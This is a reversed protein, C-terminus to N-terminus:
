LQLSPPASPSDRIEVADILTSEASAEDRCRVGRVDSSQISRSRTHCVCNYQDLCSVPMELKIIPDAVSAVSKCDYLTCSSDLHLSDRDWAGSAGAM